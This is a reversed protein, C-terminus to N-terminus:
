NPVMTNEFKLQYVVDVLHKSERTAMIANQLEKFMPPKNLSDLQPLNPLRDLALPDM